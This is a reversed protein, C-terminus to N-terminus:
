IIIVKVSLFLWEEEIFLLLLLNPFIHLSFYCRFKHIRAFFNKYGLNLTNCEDQNPSVRLLCRPFVPNRVWCHFGCNSRHSASPLSGESMNQKSWHLRCVDAM